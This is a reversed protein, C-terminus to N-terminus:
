AAETSTYIGTLLTGVAFRLILQFAAFSSFGTSAVASSLRPLM